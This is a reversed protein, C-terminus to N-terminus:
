APPTQTLLRNFVSQEEGPQQGQETANQEKNDAILKEAEKDTLEKNYKLLLDKRTILNNELMFTDIAIQDQASMPYEPEHFKIGMENPFKINNASAIVKEINFFEKEYLEWLEIDDQYDEFRELDKIKLAVGSSPRDSKGDEAFTIWLHNNQATLDLVAKVLDIADRVNAQPSKIDLRSEPPIVMIESSGARMLKEEEYMGEIVYQGFMQFRMGLSAETLLINITENAAVIDYAGSVFFENLHHERHTFVFPIVGYNHAQEFIILGDENFVIYHDKDWYCYQLKEVDTPDNVNQVMPYTIAYPIFPDDDFFADFYYVPNYTFEPEPSQKFVVQTAVTGVLRTMKEIHKMKHAKRYTMNNYQQNVNRTAGLTYIRSMRDIMRRTVNFEALPVEKFADTTFRDEIYQTTNDGAYYDLLKYIGDRRSKAFLKKQDKLSEHILAIAQDIM